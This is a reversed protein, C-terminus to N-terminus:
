AALGESIATLSVSDRIVIQRRTPTDIIQRRKLDSMARCTTEITLGLYDAIDQRGLPLDVAYGNGVEYREFTLFFTAIRQRASQHGLMAVHREAANLSRSLMHLRRRNVEPDASSFHMVCIRPCRLVAVESVAEATSSYEEATEFGFIDGPQHFNVIQRRGDAFVRSLRVAGEVVKYAYFAKGGKVYITENRAFRIVIGFEVPETEADHHFFRCGRACSAPRSVLENVAPVDESDHFTASLKRLM